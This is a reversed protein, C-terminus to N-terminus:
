SGPFLTAYDKIYPKFEAMIKVMEAFAAMNETPIQHFFIDVFKKEDVARQMLARTAARGEATTYPAYEPEFGTLGFPNATAPYAAMSDPNFEYVSHGRATNYYKKVATLERSGWSHFPVVFINAGRFGNARIWQQTLRLENDLAADTLTTLDPHNYSHSVVAWGAAHMERVQALTLYGTWGSDIPGPNIAINGVLGYKKMEAFGKTYADLFGDDFTITIAGTTPPPPPPPPTITDTPTSDSPVSDTPTSDVPPPPPAECKQITYAIYTADQDPNKRDYVPYIPSEGSWATKEVNRGNWPGYVIAPAAIVVQTGATRTGLPLTYTYTTVTPTHWVSKTFRTLQLAGNKKRPIQETTSSLNVYSGEIKWSGTVAFTVVLKTSDNSVLVSGVEVPAGTNTKWILRSSVGAPCVPGATNFRPGRVAVAEPATVTEDACAAAVLAVAIASGLKWGRM